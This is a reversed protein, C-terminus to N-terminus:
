GQRGWDSERAGKILHEFFHAEVQAHSFFTNGQQLAAKALDIRYERSCLRELAAVLNQPAEGTVIEAVGPNEQAWRVASCDPPGYILLPLGTATYDALKSPFGAQMNARDAPAFSMPVFLVDAEQRLRAIFQDAPLLGGLWINSNNLGSQIAQEKTLPGYILLQGQISQLCESLSQLARVQGPTNITGGFAVTLPRDGKATTVPEEPAITDRARSPYLVSGTMGYRKDYADVMFPSVCFRSAAQHYVQCFERDLWQRLPNVLRATRIWDDHIILHLPLNHQVAFQAATLWSYSHAVTLVAEPQFDALLRPIQQSRGTATWSLWSSVQTHFRTNLWRQNGVSLQRYEVAPLRREPQSEFLTGEIIRLKQPPYNQLLRYVLASGHYSAEIPVDGIYLLKPLTALNNSIIM